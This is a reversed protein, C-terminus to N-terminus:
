YTSSSSSSSSSSVICVIIEFQIQWYSAESSDEVRFKKGMQM